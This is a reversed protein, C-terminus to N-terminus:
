KRRVSTGELDLLVTGKWDKLLSKWRMTDRDAFTAYGTYSTPTFLGSKWEMTQTRESWTPPPLEVALGSADYIARRYTKTLMDFWFMSMSAGGDSKHSTESRLFRRDLVWDFTEVYSVEQVPQPWRRTAKVDWTGRWKEVVKFEPGASAGSQPSQSHNSDSARVAPWVLLLLFCSRLLPMRPKM